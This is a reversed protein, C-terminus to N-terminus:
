LLDKFILFVIQAGIVSKMKLKFHLKRSACTLIPPCELLCENVLYIQFFIAAVNSNCFMSSARVSLCGKDDVGMLDIAEEKM